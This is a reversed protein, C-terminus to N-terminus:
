IKISDPTFSVNAMNKVFADLILIQSTGVTSFKNLTQKTSLELAFAEYGSLQQPQLVLNSKHVILRLSNVDLELQIWYNMLNANISEEIYNIYNIYNIYKSLIFNNIGGEKCLLKQYDQKTMLDTLIKTM